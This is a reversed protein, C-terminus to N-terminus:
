HMQYESIFNNRFSSLKADINKMLLSFGIMLMRNIKIQGERGNALKKIHRLQMFIMVMLNGTEEELAFINGCETMNILHNSITMCLNARTAVVQEKFPKLLGTILNFITPLTGVRMPGSANTIIM